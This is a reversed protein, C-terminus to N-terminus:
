LWSRATGRGGDVAVLSGLVRGAFGVGLVWEEKGKVVSFTFSKAEV